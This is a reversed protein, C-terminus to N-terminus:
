AKRSELVPVLHWANDSFHLAAAVADLRHDEVHHVQGEGELAVGSLHALEEPRLEAGLCPLVVLSLFLRYM